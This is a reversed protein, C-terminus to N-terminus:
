IHNLECKNEDHPYESHVIFCSRPYLSIHPHPPSLLSKHQLQRYILVRFACRLARDPQCEATKGSGCVVFFGWAQAHPKEALKIGPLQHRADQGGGEPGNSRL